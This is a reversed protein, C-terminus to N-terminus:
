TGRGAGVADRARELDARTRAEDCLYMFSFDLEARTEFRSRAEDYAAKDRDLMALGALARVVLSGGALTRPRGKVHGIAQHFATRAAASDQQQAAITGLEVLTFVRFTDRYMHDSQEIKELGAMCQDRADDLRGLVRLCEAIYGGSDPFPSADPLGNVRRSQEFSWLAESVNGLALHLSGLACWTYSARPELQVARRILALAEENRGLQHVANGGFYFCWFSTGDLERGRALAADSEALRNYRTLAYGLWIYPEASSPEVDIAARANAIARDLVGTDSTYTFKMAYVSALGTLAPAYKSDLDVARQFLELSEDLTGKELRRFL